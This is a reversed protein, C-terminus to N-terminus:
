GTSHMWLNDWKVGLCGHSIPAKVELSTLDGAQPLVAMLSATPVQVCNQVKKRLVSLMVEGRLGEVWLSLSLAGEM